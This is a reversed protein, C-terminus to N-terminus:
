CFYGALGFTCVGYHLILNCGCLTCAQSGGGDDAHLVAPGANLLTFLGLVVFLRRSAFLMSRLM